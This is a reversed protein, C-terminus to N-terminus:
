NANDQEEIEELVYEFEKATAKPFLHKVKAMFDIAQNERATNYRISARAWHLVQADNKIANLLLDRVYWYECRRGFYYEVKDPPINHTDIMKKQDAKLRTRPTLGVLARYKIDSLRPM